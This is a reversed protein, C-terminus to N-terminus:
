LQQHLYRMAQAVELLAVLREVLLQTEQPISTSTSWFPLRIGGPRNMAEEEQEKWLRMQERLTLSLCDLLIGFDAKGPQSIIGHLKVINPHDLSKLLKAERGLDRAAECKKKFYLDPRLKKFAVRCAGQPQQSGTSCLRMLDSRLQNQQRQSDDNDTTTTAFSPIGKKSEESSIKSWCLSALTSCSKSNRRLHRDCDVEEEEEPCDM